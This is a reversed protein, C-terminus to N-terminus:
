EKTKKREMFLIWDCRAARCFVRYRKRGNLSFLTRPIRWYKESDSFRWSRRRKEVSVRRLPVYEQIRIASCQIEEHDRIDPQHSKTKHWSGRFFGQTFTTKGAGLDGRLALVLAHACRGSRHAILSQAMECGFQKTEGSSCSHFTKMREEFRVMFGRRFDSRRCSCIRFDFALELLSREFIDGTPYAADSVGIEAVAGNKRARPRNAGSLSSSPAM